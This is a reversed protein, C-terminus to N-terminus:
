KSGSAYYRTTASGGSPGITSKKAIIIDGAALTNLIEQREREPLKFGRRIMERETIPGFRAILDYAKNLKREYESDAVNASSQSLLTRACFDTLSAAWDVDRVEILPAGPDRGIAAVMAFKACHDGIRAVIEGEGPLAAVDHDGSIRAQWAEQKDLYAEMAAHADHTYPVPYAAMPVTSLMGATSMNGYDHGEAGASIAKLGCLISASFDGSVMNKNRPVSNQNSLFVNFRAISGDILAGGELAGWLTSPTTAGFVAVHPTQIDVRPHEKENAYQKGYFISNARSYFKMLNSMIEVQYTAAKKGTISQLMM